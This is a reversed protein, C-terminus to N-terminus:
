NKIKRSILSTLGVRDLGRQREPEDEAQGQALRLAEDPRNQGQHPGIEISRVVGRERPSTLLKIDLEVADRGGSREMENDVARSQRNNTLTLPGSRFM